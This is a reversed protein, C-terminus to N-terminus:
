PASIGSGFHCFLGEWGQFYAVHGGSPKTGPPLHVIWSQTTRLVRRTHELIRAESGIGLDNLVSQAEAVSYSIPIGSVM